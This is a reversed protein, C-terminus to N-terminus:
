IPFEKMYRRITEVSLGTKHAIRKAAGRQGWVDSHRDRITMARIKKDEHRELNAGLEEPDERKLPDGEDSFKVGIRDYSGIDSLDGVIKSKQGIRARLHPPVNAFADELERREAQAKAERKKRERTPM